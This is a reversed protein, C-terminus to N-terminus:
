LPNKQAQFSAAKNKWWDVTAAAAQELDPVLDKLLGSDNANDDILTAISALQMAYLSGTFGKLSHAKLHVHEFDSSDIARCLEDTQLLLSEQAQDLLNVLNEFGLQDCLRSLSADDGIPLSQYAHKRVVPDQFGDSVTQKDQALRNVSGEQAESKGQGPTIVQGYKTLVDALQRETFPKTLVDNMGAKRFLSHREAFAEATLGVIPVTQGTISKRITRTAEIGDMEPMHVDMLVIDAWGESALDVALKGNEAHRVEHGFKELFAKAIMANVPNDEALIVKLPRAAASNQILRSNAFSIADEETARFFPLYVTFISGKGLQSDVEITGGIKDTLQKVISLGLGTGGFKRAITNDEQTFAEFVSSIRDDAIGPGTDEVEFVLLSDKHHSVHSSDGDLESITLTIAGQDTFKIANSLLNWLIQRLRVPDGRLINRSSIDSKVRMKLNKDGALSQFPTAITSILESVSFVTDELELGGAEIKSMDLVDNIIVLLMNGSSLITDVKHRQDEDLNTDILLQALGLVGNLPTRIEHSMTSLFNSKARSAAEAAEQASKFETIDVRMGVIGGDPMRREAIKLWRGDALMQEVQTNGARHAVMRESVWEEERGVAAIHQGAYAGARIIDEFKTGPNMMHQSKPYYERYKENCVVLRDDADYYVFGEDIIELAALLQKRSKEAEVSLTVKSTVDRAVGRYGAFEGEADYYPEGSTSMWRLGEPRNRSFVFDYFPHQNELDNLHNQWAEDNVGEARWDTRSKGYHWEPSFGSYIEVSPSMYVFRHEKDTEWFWGEILNGLQDLRDM